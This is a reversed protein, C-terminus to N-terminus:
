HKIGPVFIQDGPEVEPDKGPDSIAKVCDVYIVQQDRLIRVMGRNAFETFGGCTNIAGVVTLDTRYAIRGPGHVEGGVAIFQGEAVVEATDPLQGAPTQDATKRHVRSGDCGTLLVCSVLAGIWLFTKMPPIKSNTGM